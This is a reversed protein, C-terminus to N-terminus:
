WLNSYFCISSIVGSLLLAQGEFQQLAAEPFERLGGFPRVGFNACSSNESRVGRILFSAFVYPFNLIQPKTARSIVSRLWLRPGLVVVERHHQSDHSSGFPWLLSQRAAM